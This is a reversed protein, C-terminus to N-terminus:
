KWYGLKKMYPTVKKMRIVGKNDIFVTANPKYEGWNQINAETVLDQKLVSLQDSTIEQLNMADYKGLFALIEPLETIYTQKTRGKHQKNTVVFNADQFGGNKLKRKYQLLGAKELVDRERKSILIM